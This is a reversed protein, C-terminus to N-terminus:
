IIGGSGTCSPTVMPLGGSFDYDYEVIGFPHKSDLDANTSYIDTNFRKYNKIVNDDPLSSRGWKFVTTCVADLESPLYKTLNSASPSAHHPIKVFRCCKMLRHKAREIHNNKTDGGLYLGYGNINVVVSVSLENPDSCFSGNVFETLRSSIPTIADIRIKATTDTSYLDKIWFEDINQDCNDAVGIPVALSEHNKNKELILRLNRTSVVGYKVIDASNRQIYM